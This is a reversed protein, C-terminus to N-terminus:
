RLTGLCLVPPLTQSSSTEDSYICRRLFKSPYKVFDTSGSKRRRPSKLMWETTATRDSDSNEPLNQLRPTTYRFCVPTYYARRRPQPSYNALFQYRLRTKLESAEDVRTERVFDKRARENVAHAIHTHTCIRTRVCVVCAARMCVYYKTDRM